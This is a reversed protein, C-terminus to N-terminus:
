SKFNPSLGRGPLAPVCMARRASRLRSNPSTTGTLPTSLVLLDDDGSTLYVEKIEIGLKKALERSAQARKPAEKVSRIGQETWKLLSRRCKDETHNSRTCPAQGIAASDARETTM